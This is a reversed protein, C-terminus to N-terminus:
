FWLYMFSMNLVVHVHFVCNRVSQGGTRAASSHTFLQVFDEKTKTLAYFEELQRNVQYIKIISCTCILSIDFPSMFAM